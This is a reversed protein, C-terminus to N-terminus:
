LDPFDTALATSRWKVVEEIRTRYVSEGTETAMRGLALHLPPQDSEIAAILAQAARNPDGAQKGSQADTKKHRETVIEYDPIREAARKISRGGFDTRFPGPQVVLVRIGLPGAELALAESFGEVAFKTACYWGAGAVGLFGAVSSFNIIYGSRRRRMMPLVARTAATLGFFNVEFQHRIEADSSEEIGGQFGYGANNVLVDIGGFTTEAAKIASSIQDHRTVDLEATLMRGPGEAALSKLAAPNRATAVVNGGRALVARVISHGFGTSSGTVLWTKNSWLM